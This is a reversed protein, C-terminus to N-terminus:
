NANFSGAENVYREIIKRHDEDSLDEGVLRSAVLVSIDAISGQLEAM